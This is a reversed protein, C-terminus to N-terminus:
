GSQDVGFLRAANHHMIKLKDEDPIRTYLMKSVQHAMSFCPADSGWVVRDAGVEGVIHEIMGTHERSYTLDLYVNPCKQAFEIYPKYAFGSGTHAVMFNVDPNKEAATDYGTLEGAWTHALVPVRREKAFQWAADFNESDYACGVQYVKIGRFGDIAFCRQLEELMTEPYNGSVHCYGIFRGPYRRIADAVEDNGGAIDGYLARSSSIATVDIGVRDMEAVQDVLPLVDWGAMGGVHAHVDIIPMDLRRGQRAYDVLTESM